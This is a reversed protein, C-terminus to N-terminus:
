SEKEMQELFHTISGSRAALHLYKTLIDMNHEGKIRCELEKPITGRDNLLFLIAEITGEAKGETKGEIKAEAREDELLEELLMYKEEMERSGKIQEITDQIKRVLEDQFDMCSEKYDAKVYRLFKVLEEPVEDNNEGCTSLFITKSGDDLPLGTEKCRNEFTYRYKKQGFPDFDCIFIVYASSLHEYDEGSLLMEMDMQGHYYRSRRSLGPKRIVQMEVNYRTKNEDKAIIDLRVGRYEPHYVITKEKSVEVREIPFEVALELVLRCIEEQTMVAGFMFNDKYLLKALKRNQNM